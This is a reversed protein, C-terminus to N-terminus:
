CKAQEGTRKNAIKLIPEISCRDSRTEIWQKLQLAMDQRLPIVDNKRRKTGLTHASLLVM